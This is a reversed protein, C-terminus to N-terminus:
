NIKKENTGKKSESILKLDCMMFIACPHHETLSVRNKFHVKTVLYGRRPNGGRFRVLDGVKM